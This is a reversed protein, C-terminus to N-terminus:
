KNSAGRFSHIIHPILSINNIRVTNSFEECADVSDYFITKIGLNQAPLIDLFYTDGIYVADEAPCLTDSLAKLFIRKDPKSIGYNHSDLIYEFYKMCNLEQLINCLTGDWNSIVGLKYEKKRLCELVDIVGDIISYNKELIIGSIEKAYTKAIDDRLGGAKFGTIYYDKWFESTGFYDINIIEKQYYLESARAAKRWESDTLNLNKYQKCFLEFLDKKPSSFMNFITHCGDFFIMNVRENIPM